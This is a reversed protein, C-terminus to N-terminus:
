NWATEKLLNLSFCKIDRLTREFIFFPQFTMFFFRLEEIFAKQTCEGFSIVFKLLVIFSIFLLFRGQVPKPKKGFGFPM